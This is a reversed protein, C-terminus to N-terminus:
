PSADSPSQAGFSRIHSIPHTNPIIGSHDLTSSVPSLVSPSPTLNDQDSTSRLLFGLVSFDPFVNIYKIHFMVNSQIHPCPHIKCGAKTTITSQLGKTRTPQTELNRLTHALSGSASFRRCLAWYDAWASCKSIQCVESVTPQNEASM